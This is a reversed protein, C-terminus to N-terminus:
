RWSCPSHYPIHLLISSYVQSKLDIFLYRKQLALYSSTEQLMVTEQALRNLFGIEESSKRSCFMRFKWNRPPSSPGECLVLYNSSIEEEQILPWHRPGAGLPSLLRKGGLNPATINQNHPGFAMKFEKTLDDVKAKEGLYEAYKKGPDNTKWIYPSLACEM